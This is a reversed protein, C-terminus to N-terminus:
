GQLLHVFERLEVENLDSVAWFTMASRTWRIMHFGQRTATPPGAEDGPSSPWIFVNISHKRRQYLLAAVPRNRLYDLRGGVLPFGQDALDKVPPSFDLKGEFWPKVTHPDASAVDFRHSPLMQSRIHGAALEQTLFADDARPPVVRALWWSGAAVFAVSAAVALLPGTWARLNRGPRGEQRVSTRVRGALRSPARSYLDSNKIAARIARVGAHARACEPCEQLHREIELGDRLDLEGDAYGHVLTQIDQCNV